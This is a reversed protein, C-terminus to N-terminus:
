FVNAYAAAKEAGGSTGPQTGHRSRAREASRSETAGGTGGGPHQGRRLLVVSRRPSSRLHPFSSSRRRVTPLGPRHM